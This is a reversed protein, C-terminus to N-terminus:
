DADAPWSDIIEAVVARLQPGAHEVVGWVLDLNVDPYAHILRNRMAVIETWPVEPHEARTEGSVNASAEGVIEIWRVIAAALVEDARLGDVGDPRHEELKDLYEVIDRLRDLDRSM